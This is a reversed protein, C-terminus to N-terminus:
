EGIIKKHTVLNRCIHIQAEMLTKGRMQKLLEKKNKKIQEEIDPIQSRVGEVMGEIVTMLEKDKPKPADINPMLRIMEDTFHNKVIEEGVIISSMISTVNSLHKFRRIIRPDKLMHQFDLLIYVDAKYGQERYKEADWKQMNFYENSIYALVIEHETVCNRTHENDMDISDMDNNVWKLGSVMDWLYLRIGDIRAFHNMYTIFRREENTQVSFIPVRSRIFSVLNEKFPGNGGYMTDIIDKSASKLDVKSTLFAPKKVKAKAKAKAKSQAKTTGKKGSM